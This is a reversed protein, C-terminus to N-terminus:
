CQMERTNTDGGDLLSSYVSSTERGESNVEKGLKTHGPMCTMIHLRPKQLCMGTDELRAETSDKHPECDYDTSKVVSRCDEAKSSQKPLKRYSFLVVRAEEFKM